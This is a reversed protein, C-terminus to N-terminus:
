LLQNIGIPAAFSTVVRALILISLLIFETRFVRMLGFFIHRRKGVQFPDLHQQSIITAETPCASPPECVPFSSLRLHQSSDYDALPPMHESSLQPTRSGVSIFPDLYSYLVVSLLSATQDPSPTASPNQVFKLDAINLEWDNERVKPDVPVYPRPVVLPAVAGVLVLISIKIWLLQGEGADLPSRTYTALPFLDRYCYVALTSM